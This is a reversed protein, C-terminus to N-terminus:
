YSRVFNKMPVNLLATKEENSGSSVAASSFVGKTANKIEVHLTMYLVSNTVGAILLCLIYFPGVTKFVPIGSMEAIGVFASPIMMFLIGTLLIGM